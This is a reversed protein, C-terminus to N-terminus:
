VIPESEMEQTLHDHTARALDLANEDCTASVSVANNRAPTPSANWDGTKRINVLERQIEEFSPRLKADEHWCDTLLKRVARSCSEAIPPREGKMKVRFMIQYTNLDDYARKGAHLCWLLIGFAYVDVQRGNVDESRAPGPSLNDDAVFLEPAMYAPTGIELTIDSALSDQEKRALGFDAIKVENGKLLVNPPKLDRHLIGKFHMFAMGESVQQAIQLFRQKRHWTVRGANLLNAVSHHCLEMVMYCKGNQFSTGFLHVINPHALSSLLKPEYQMGHQGLEKVAVQMSNFTGKYVQANAGKGLRHNWSIDLQDFPIIWKEEM